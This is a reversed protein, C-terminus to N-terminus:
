VTLCKRTKLLTKHQKPRAPMVGTGCFRFFTFAVFFVYFATSMFTTMECFLVLLLCVLSLLSLDFFSVIGDYDDDCEELPTPVIIEPVPLVELTM